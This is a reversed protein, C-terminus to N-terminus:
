TKSEGEGTFRKPSKPIKILKQYLSTSSEVVGLNLLFSLEGNEVRLNVRLPSEM